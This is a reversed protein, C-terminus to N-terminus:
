RHRALDAAGVIGADAGLAALRVQPAARYSKATLLELFRAEAPGRLLEGAESVGGGIVFIGPDLIAALSAMGHGLWTGLVRFSELAAEDGDKAAQTVHLGTIAEARGGALQLMGDAIAPSISALEQAERLLARGSAYREWCGRNGCGCRRGGPSVTLHGLEAAIGLRGRFLEGDLVIGGGLGTGVTLMVVFREGRAAGFRTEAWAAANGDNEVVVALGLRHELAARLPEQRWALNPAFIVTARAADVLGAAGLGVAEVPHQARLEEVVATIVDETKSPDDSPTQQRARAIVRGDEDVVGAAVKTGGVDVGITLGVAAESEEPRVWPGAAPLAVM